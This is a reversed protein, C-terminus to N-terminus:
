GSDAEPLRLIESSTESLDKFDPNITKILAMKKKRVWGKIKRETAVAESLTSFEQLYILKNINYKITFKPGIRKIHETIRRNPNKTSGVYLTNSKNTLIYVYYPM